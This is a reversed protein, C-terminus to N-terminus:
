AASAHELFSQTKLDLDDHGRNRCERPNQLTHQEALEVPMYVSAAM